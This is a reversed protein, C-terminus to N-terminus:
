FWCMLSFHFTFDNADDRGLKNKEALETQAAAHFHLCAAFRSALYCTLRMARRLATEPAKSGSHRGAREICGPLWFGGPKKIM